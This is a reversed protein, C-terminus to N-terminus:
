ENVLDRFEQLLDRNEEDSLYAFKGKKNVIYYAPITNLGYQRKVEDVNHAIVNNGYINHKALSEKWIDDELDISVNLLVVGMKKLQARLQESKKFGNICPKCWHAWFSIYVVQGKYSSLSRITGVEDRIQFVPADIDPMEIILEGYLVEVAQTYEPYPCSKKFDAFKKKALDTSGEYTYVNRMLKSLLYYKARGSMNKEINNYYELEVAVSNTKKPLFLFHAYGRMYNHYAPHDMLDLSLTNADKKLQYHKAVRQFDGPGMKKQNIILYGIKNTEYTYKIDNSIYDILEKNINIADKKSLLFALQEQNKEGLQKYYISPSLNALEYNKHLIQTKIYSAEYDWYGGSKYKSEYDFILQNNEIGKGSFNLTSNASNATFKMVLDDGPKLFLKFDDQDLTIEAFANEALDIVTSVKNDAKLKVRYIDYGEAGTKKVKIEILDTTPNDVEFTLYTSTAQLLTYSFICCFFLIIKKM